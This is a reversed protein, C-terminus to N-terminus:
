GRSLKIQSVVYRYVHNEPKIMKLGVKELHKNCNNLNFRKPEQFGTFPKDATIKLEKENGQLALFKKTCQKAAIISNAQIM